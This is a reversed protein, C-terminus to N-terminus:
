DGYIKLRRTTYDFDIMKSNEKSTESGYQMLLEHLYINLKYRAEKLKEMFENLKTDNEISSKREMLFRILFEYSSIDSMLMYAYDALSENDIVVEQLLTM